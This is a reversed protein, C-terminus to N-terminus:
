PLWDRSGALAFKTGLWPLAGLLGFCLFAARRTDLKLALLACGALIAGATLRGPTSRRGQRSLSVAAVAGGRRGGRHGVPRAGSRLALRYALVVALAAIAALIGWTLVQAENLYDRIQQHPYRQQSKSIQSLPHNVKKAELIAIAARYRHAAGQDIVAEKEADNAFLIYDPELDQKTEPQALNDTWGFGLKELIKDLM